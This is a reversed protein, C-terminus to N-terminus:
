LDSRLDINRKDFRVLAPFAKGLGMQPEQLIM